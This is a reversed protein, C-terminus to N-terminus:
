CRSKLKFSIFLHSANSLYVSFDTVSAGCRVWWPKLALPICIPILGVWLISYTGVEVELFCHCSTDRLLRQLRLDLQYFNQIAIVTVSCHLIMVPWLLFSYFLLCPSMLVDGLSFYFKRKKVGRWRDDILSYCPAPM